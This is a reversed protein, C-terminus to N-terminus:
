CGTVLSYQPNVRLPFNSHDGSVKNKPLSWVQECRERYEDNEGIGVMVDAQAPIGTNSYDVDGMDLVLKNTASDGAQTVSLVVVDCEKAVNRAETASAELQNTRSDAKVLMNRMQDIVVWRPKYRDIMKRLQAYTGPAESVVVLGDFGNGKAIEIAKSPNERVEHKSMRTLNTVYRMILSKARDENVFHLGNHGHVLFGCGITIAARTKGVEPRGFLVVHNGPRLGGDLRQGLGLPYVKMVKSPDTEEEILTSLDINSYEEEGKDTPAGTALAATLRGYEELLPAVKTEGGNLLAAALQLGVEHRRTELVLQELNPLSVEQSLSSHIIEKFLERHKPNPLDNTLRALFLDPDIHTASQDTNYYKDVWELIKLFEKDNKHANLNLEPRVRTWVERDTFLLKILKSTAQM